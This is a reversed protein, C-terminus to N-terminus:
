LQLIKQPRLILVLNLNNLSLTVVKTGQLTRKAKLDKLANSKMTEDRQEMEKRLQTNLLEVRVFLAVVCLYLVVTSCSPRNSASHTKDKENAMIRVSWLSDVSSGPSRVTQNLQQWLLKIYFISIPRATMSPSFPEAKGKVGEANQNFRACFVLKRALDYM